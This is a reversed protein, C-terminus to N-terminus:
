KANLRHKHLAKSSSKGMDLERILKQTNGNACQDCPVEQPKSDFFYLNDSYKKNKVCQYFGGWALKM